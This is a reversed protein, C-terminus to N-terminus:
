KPEERHIKKFVRKKFVWKGDIKVCEDEYYGRDRTTRGDTDDFVESTYCRVEATDGDVVIHGPTSVFIVGPYQAMAGVWMDVIAKRGIVDPFEPYDPLSWSSDEAWCAGWEEANNRCVADSYVDLLERIALRDEFPGSFGM